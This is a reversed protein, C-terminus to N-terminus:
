LFCVFLFVVPFYNYPLSLSHWLLLICTLGDYAGLPLPFRESCLVVYNCTFSLLCILERKGIIGLSYRARKFRNVIRKFLNSFNPNGIIKKFKYVLDGYFEPNCIGQQMLKKLSVHYKEILEFHRRYFKSFAKRLKHYRYGQRLLKATIISTLLMRIHEPLAFLNLYIYVMLPVNLSPFDVIDFILIM